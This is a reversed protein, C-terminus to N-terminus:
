YPIKCYTAIYKHLTCHQSLTIVEEHVKCKDAGLFSQM